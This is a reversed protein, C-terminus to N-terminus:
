FQVDSVYEWKMEIKTGLYVGDILWRSIRPPLVRLIDKLQYM